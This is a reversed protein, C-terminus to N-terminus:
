PKPTPAPAQPGFRTFTPVGVAPTQAGPAQPKATSPAVPTVPASSQPTRTPARTPTPPPPPVSIPRTPLPTPINVEPSAIAPAPAAATVFEAAVWGVQGQADRVERWRRGDTQEERGTPTLATGDPLLAIREGDPAPTKRLTLGDAGTNAVYVPRQATPMPTPIALPTRTPPPPIPTSAQFPTQVAAPSSTAFVVPATSVPAPTPSGPLPAIFCGTLLLPGVIVLALHRVRAGVTATWIAADRGDIQV